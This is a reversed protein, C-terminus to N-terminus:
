LETKEEGVEEGAVIQVFDGYTFRTAGDEDVDGVTTTSASPTKGSSLIHVSDTVMATALLETTVSHYRAPLWPDFVAHFKFITWDLWGYRLEKTIINSPQFIRISPPHKVATAKKVAATVVAKEKWGMMRMTGALVPWWGMPTGTKTLEEESYPEPDPQDADIATFLAIVTTQMKVCLWTMSEAMTVEVVHWDYLDSQQPFANGVAIFCADVKMAALEDHQDVIGLDAVDEVKIVKLPHDDSSSLLDNVKPPFPRRGVLILTTFMQNNALIARLVENGVAGSAGFLVATKAETTGIRSLSLAILFILCFSFITTRLLLM